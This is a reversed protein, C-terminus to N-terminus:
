RDLHPCLTRGYDQLTAPAAPVGHADWTVTQPLTDCLNVTIWSAGYEVLKRANWLLRGYRTHGYQEQIEYPQTEFREGYVMRETTGETLLGDHVVAPDFASEDLGRGDAAW